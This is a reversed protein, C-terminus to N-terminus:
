SNEKRGLLVVGEKLTNIYDETETLRNVIDTIANKQQETIYNEINKHEDVYIDVSNTKASNTENSFEIWIKLEQSFSTMEGPLAIEYKFYNKYINPNVLNISCGVNNENVVCVRFNYESMDRNLITQSIYIRLLEFDDLTQVVSSSTILLHKDSNLKLVNM